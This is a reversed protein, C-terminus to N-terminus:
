LGALCGILASYPIIEYFMRPLSYLVFRGVNFLTYNNGIDEIQELFTFIALLGVLGLVAVVMMLAVTRGLYLDLIKM